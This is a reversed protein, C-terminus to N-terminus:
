IFLHHALCHLKELCFRTKISIKIYILKTSVCVKLSCGERIYEKPFKLFCKKHHTNNQWLMRNNMFLYSSADLPFFIWVLRMRHLHSYLSLASSSPEAPWSIWIVTAKELCTTQKTIDKRFLSGAGNVALGKISIILEKLSAELLTTPRPIQSFDRNEWNWMRKALCPNFISCRLWCGYLALPIILM